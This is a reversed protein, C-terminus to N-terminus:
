SILLRSTAEELVERRKGAIIDIYDEVSDIDCWKAGNFEVVQVYGKKKRSSCSLLESISPNATLCDEIVKMSARRFGFIGMDIWDWSDLEKGISLSGDKEKKIKTAEFTDVYKPNLDGAIVIESGSLLGNVVRDAVGKGFLHDVVSVVATESLSLAHKLALYLSYGNELYSRPNPLITIRPDLRKLLAYAEHYWFPNVVVVIENAVDKLTMIQLELLSRGKIKFFPKPLGGSVKSLRRGIGAALIAGSTLLRV